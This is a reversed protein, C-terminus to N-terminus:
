SPDLKASQFQEVAAGLGTLDDRLFELTTDPVLMTTGSIALQLGFPLYRTAGDLTQIRYGVVDGAGGVTLALDVVTGLEVGAETTVTNGLVNRDTPPQAISPDAESPSVLADASAIIVADPGVAHINDAPLVARLRGAFFGRKNLTVGTLRAEHADYLVDRVEALDEGGDLTVVPLGIIQTAMILLTV